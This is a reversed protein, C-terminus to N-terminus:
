SDLGNFLYTGLVEAFELAAKYFIAQDVEETSFFYLHEDVGDFSKRVKKALDRNQCARPHWCSQHM